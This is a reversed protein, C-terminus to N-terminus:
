FHQKNDVSLLANCMEVNVTQSEILLQTTFQLIDSFM